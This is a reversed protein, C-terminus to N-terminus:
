LTDDVFLNASHFIHFISAPARFDVNYKYCSLEAFLYELVLVTISSAATKKTLLCLISTVLMAM